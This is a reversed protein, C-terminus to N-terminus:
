RNFTRAHSDNLWPWKFSSPIETIAFGSSGNLIAAYLDIMHFSSAGALQSLLFIIRFIVGQREIYQVVQADLPFFIDLLYAIESSMYLVVVCFGNCFTM